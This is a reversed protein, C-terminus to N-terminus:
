SILTVRVNDVTVRASQGAAQGGASCGLTILVMDASTLSTFTASYSGWTGIAVGNSDAASPTTPGAITALLADRGYDYLTLTGDLYAPAFKYKFSVTYAKGICLPLIQTHLSARANASRAYTCTLMAASGDSDYSTGTTLLANASVTTDWNQLGHAFDGVSPSLPSHSCTASSPSPTAKKAQTRRQDQTSTKQGRLKGSHRANNGQSKDNDDDDEQDHQRSQNDHLGEQHHDVLKRRQPM